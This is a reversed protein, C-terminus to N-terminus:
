NLFKIYLGDIVDKLEKTNIQSNELSFFFPLRISCNDCEIYQNSEVQERKDYLFPLFEVTNHSGPVNSDIIYSYVYKAEYKLILNGNNCIPCILINEHM